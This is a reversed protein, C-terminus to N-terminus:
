SGASPLGRRSLVVTTDGARLGDVLRRHAAGSLRVVDADVFYGTLPTGSELLRVVEGASSALAADLGDGASTGQSHATTVARGLLADTAWLGLGPQVRAECTAAWRGSAAARETAPRGRRRHDGAGAGRALAAIDLGGVTVQVTDLMRGDGDYAAAVTRPLAQDLPFARAAWRRVLRDRAGGDGTFGAFDDRRRRLWDHLHRRDVGHHRAVLVDVVLRDLEYAPTSAVAMAVPHAPHHARLEPVARAHATGVHDLARVLAGTQGRRGPPGTGAVYGEVLRANTGDFTSWAASRDGLRRAVGGAWAAFRDPSDLRLWPDRGLWEPPQGRYLAAIPALGRDRCAGLLHHYGGLVDDDWRDEVPQCAAWDIGVQVSDCGAAAIGDLGPEFRRWWSSGVPEAPTALSAGFRFAEPLVFPELEDRM